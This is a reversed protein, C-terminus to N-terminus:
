KEEEQQKKKEYRKERSDVLIYEVSKFFFVRNYRFVFNM